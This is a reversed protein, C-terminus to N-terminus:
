TTGSSAPRARTRSSRTRTSASAPKRTPRRRMTEANDYVYKGIDRVIADVQEQSFTEFAPQAVRAKAVLQQVDTPSTSSSRKLGGAVAMEATPSVM